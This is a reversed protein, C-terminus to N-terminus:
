DLVGIQTSGYKLQLRFVETIKHGVVNKASFSLRLPDGLAFPNHSLALNSFQLANAM